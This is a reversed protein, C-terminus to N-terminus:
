VMQKKKESLNKPYDAIGTLRDIAEPSFRANRSGPNGPFLLGAIRPDRATFINNNNRSSIEAATEWSTLRKSKKFFQLM